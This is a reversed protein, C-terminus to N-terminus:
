AKRSPRALGYYGYVMFLTYLGSGSIMYDLCPAPNAIEHTPAATIM